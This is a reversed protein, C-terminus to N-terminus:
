QNQYGNYDNNAPNQYNPDYGNNVPNQYNPNYGNNVPAQYNQNYGNNMPNQFNQNYGNNMPAQYNPNYGNDGAPTTANATGIPKLFVLVFAAVAIVSQIVIGAQMTMDAYAGADKIEAYGVLTWFGTMLLMGIAGIISIRPHSTIQLVVYLVAIVAMIAIMIPRVSDENNLTLYDDFSFSQSFGLTGVKLFPLYLTVFYLIGIISGLIKNVVAGKYANMKKPM